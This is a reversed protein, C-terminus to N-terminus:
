RALYEDELDEDSLRKQEIQGEAHERIRQFFRWGPGHPELETMAAAAADRHRDDQPFAQGHSGSKMESIVPSVLNSAVRNYCDESVAWARDLVRVVYARHTFVFDHSTESLLTSAAEIKAADGSEFWENLLALTTPHDLVALAVFLKPVDWSRMPTRPLLADRVTRLLGDYDDRGALQAADFHLQFPIADYGDPAEDSEAAAIRDLLMQVVSTPIVRAAESVFDGIWFDDLELLTVFQCILHDLVAVPLEAPPVNHQNFLEGLQKAIGLDGGIEFTALLESVFAFNQKLAWRLSGLTTRRVAPAAHLLLQQLLAREDASYHREGAFIAGVSAALTPDNTSIAEQALALASNTDAEALTILVVHLYSSLPHQADALLGRAIATAYAAGGARAVSGLFPGPATRVRLLEAMRLREAAWALFSEPTRRAVVSTATDRLLASHTHQVKDFDYRGPEGDRLEYQHGFGDVLVRTEATDRRALVADVIRRSGARVDADGDHFATWEVDSLVELQVLPEDREGVFGQLAALADLRDRKWQEQQENTIPHGDAQIEVAGVQKALVAAAKSAVDLRPARLCTHVLALARERLAVVADRTITFPRISFSAADESWTHTGSRALAASVIDLVSYHHDHVDPEDLLRAAADVVATQYTVPKFRGFGAMEALLRIPHGPNPGLENRNDRGLEWLLRVCRPIFEVHYAIETLIPPLHRLVTEASFHFAVELESVEEVPKRVAYEVFRLADAPQYAAVAKVIDLIQGRRLVTASQFEAMLEDWVPRLLAEANPVERRIRWDVEGLNRLLRAAAVDRFAQFIRTAYGTPRGDRTVCAQELIFDSLVDPTIRTRTGRRRLVGASLLSDVARVLEDETTSLFSAMAARVGAGDMQVPGLAAILTLLDRAFRAEMDTARGFMEEEFRSFVVFRVDDDSSLAGVNLVKTQALRAAAVALVPSDMVRPTLLEILHDHDGVIARLLAKTEARDLEDLPTVAVVEAPAFYRALKGRVADVASSRTAVVVKTPLPRQRVIEMIATMDEREHADDVVIITPELPLEGVSTATVTLGTVYALEWDGRIASLERLIRSKGIGGRGSIVAAKTDSGVFSTLEELQGHRGVIPLDHRLPDAQGRPAFFLQPSAFTAVVGDKFFNRVSDDGLFQYVLRRGQEPPMTRVYLSIDRIDWLEWDPLEEFFKRVTTSVECAVFLFRRAAPITTQKVLKKANAPRFAGVQRFQLTWRAQPEVDVYADIAHQKEGQKGFHVPRQSTLALTLQECFTEFQKWSLNESRLPLLTEAPRVPPRTKM